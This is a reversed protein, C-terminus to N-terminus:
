HTQTHTPLFTTASTNSNTHTCKNCALSTIDTKETRLGRCIAADDGSLGDLGHAFVHQRFAVPTVHCALHVSSPPPPCRSNYMQATLTGNGVMSRGGGEKIQVGGRRGM